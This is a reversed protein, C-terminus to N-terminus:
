LSNASLEKTMDTVYIIDGTDGDVGVTYPHSIEDFVNQINCIITWIKKEEDYKANNVEFFFKIKKISEFYDRVAMTAQKADM